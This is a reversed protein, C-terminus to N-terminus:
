PKVATIDSGCDICKWCNSLVTDILSSSSSLKNHQQQMDDISMTRRKAGCRVCAQYFPSVIPKFTISCRDFCHGMNCICIPGVSFPISNECVPCDQRSPLEIDMLSKGVLASDVLDFETSITQVLPDTPFFSRLKIYTEKVTTLLQISPKPEYLARDCWLLLQIIDEGNLSKWFTDEQNNVFTLVSQLYNLIIFHHGKSNLEDLYVRATDTLRYSKSEMSIYVAIQCAVINPISYVMRTLDLSHWRSEENLSDIANNLLQLWVMLQEDNDEDLLFELQEHLISQIPYTFFFDPDHIYLKLDNLLKPLAKQNDINPHLLFAVHTSDKSEVYTHVDVLPKLTFLIASYLGNPTADIGWLLVGFSFGFLIEEEEYKSMEEMWQQKFKRQLKQTVILSSSGDLDLINDKYSLVLGTGEHTVLRISKGNNAFYAGSVGLASNPVTYDLWTLDLVLQYDKQVRLMATYVMVQKVVLIKIIDNKSDEWLKIITPIGSDEEFWTHLIQIQVSNVASSAIQITVSSIVAIGNTSTSLLYGIYNEGSKRWKSWQLLNVPSTHVQCDIQYRFGDAISYSWLSIGGAKNGIAIIAPKPKLPDIIIYPSWAAYLSHFQNIQELTSFEETESQILVHDRLMPTMDTHLTWNPTDKGAEFLLVRHKTTIVTLLCGYNSSLGTPSWNTCRYGESIAYSSQVPKEIVDSEGFDYSDPLLDNMILSHQCSDLDSSIGVLIPTLLHVSNDFCVSLISDDSWKIADSGFPKGNINIGVQSEM